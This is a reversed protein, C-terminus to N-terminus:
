AYYCLLMYLIELTMDLSVASVWGIARSFTQTRRWQVTLLLVLLPLKEAKLTFWWKNMGVVADEVCSALSQSKARLFTSWLNLKVPQPVSKMNIGLDCRNLPQGPHTSNTKTNDTCLPPWLSSRICKLPLLVSMCGDWPIYPFKFM